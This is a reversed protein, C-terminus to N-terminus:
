LPSTGLATTRSSPSHRPPPLPQWLPLLLYILDTYGDHLLHAGGAVLMARREDRRTGFSGTMHTTTM